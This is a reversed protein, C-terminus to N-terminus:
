EQEEASAAGSNLYWWYYARASGADGAKEYAMAVALLTKASPEERYALLFDRAAAGADGASMEAQGRRYHASAEGAQAHALGPHALFASIVTVFLGSLCRPRVGQRAGKTM